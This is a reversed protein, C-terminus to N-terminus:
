TLADSNPKGSKAVYCSTQLLAFTDIELIPKVLFCLVDFKGFFSYKNGASLCVHTHTDPPLFHQNKPFNPTSQKRKVETNLDAM